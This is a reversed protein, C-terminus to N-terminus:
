KLPKYEPKMNKNIDEAIKRATEDPATIIADVSEEIQAKSIKIGVYCKVNGKDDIKSFELCTRKTIGKVISDVTDGDLRVRKSGASKIFYSKVASKASVAIMDQANKLAKLQLEDQRNAAGSAMGTAAFNEDDDYVKCPISDLPKGNPASASATQRSGGCGTAAAGAFIASIAIFILKKYM